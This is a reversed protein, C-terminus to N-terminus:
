PARLAKLMTVLQELPATYFQRPSLNRATCLCNVVDLVTDSLKTLSPLGLQAEVNVKKAEANAKAYVEPQSLTDDQHAVVKNRITRVAEGIPDAKSLVSRAKALLEPDIKQDRELENLLDPLNDTDDSPILLNSIRIYFAWEHAV